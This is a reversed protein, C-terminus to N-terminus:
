IHGIFLIKGTIHRYLTAQRETAGQATMNEVADRLLKPNLEALKESESIKFYGDDKRTIVCGM